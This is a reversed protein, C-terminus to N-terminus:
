NAQRFGKKPNRLVSEPLSRWVREVEAMKRDILATRNQQGSYSTPGYFSPLASTMRDAIEQVLRANEEEEEQEMAVQRELETLELSKVLLPIIMDIISYNLPMADIVLQGAVYAKSMLPILVEYRGTEPYPGLLCLRSEQDYNAMYWTEPSGYSEPPKWILINWCALGSLLRHEYGGIGAVTTVESQGWAIRFNPGDFRNLGFTEDLLQQYEPPCVLREHRLINM